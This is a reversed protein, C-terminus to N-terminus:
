LFDRAIEICLFFYTLIPDNIKSLWLFAWQDIKDPKLSRLMILVVLISVNRFIQIGALLFAKSSFTWAKSNIERNDVSKSTKEIRKNAFDTMKFRIQLLPSLSSKYMRLLSM